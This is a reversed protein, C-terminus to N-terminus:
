ADIDINDYGVGYRVIATLNKLESLFASDIKTHRLLIGDAHKAFDRKESSEGEYSPYIKLDFGNKEFLEKEYDYSKYGSDIIVIEM